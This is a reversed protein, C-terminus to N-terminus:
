RPYKERIADSRQQASPRQRFITMTRQDGDQRPEQKQSLELLVRRLGTHDVIAPDPNDHNDNGQCKASQAPKCVNRIKDGIAKDDPNATQKQNTKAPPSSAM